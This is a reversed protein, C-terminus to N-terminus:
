LTVKQRLAKKQSHRKKGALRKERSARTPRTKKRKPRIVAAEAVLRELRDLAIARNLEQSREEDAALFLENQANM